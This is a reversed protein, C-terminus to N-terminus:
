LSKINTVQETQNIYEMFINQPKDFDTEGVLHPVLVTETARTLNKTTFPTKTPRIIQLYDGDRTNSYVNAYSNNIFEISSENMAENPAHYEKFEGDILMLETMYLPNDDDVKILRLEIQIERTNLLISEDITFTQHYSSYDEDVVWREGIYVPNSNLLIETDDFNYCHVKFYVIALTRCKMKNIAFTIENGSFSNLIKPFLIKVEEQVVM